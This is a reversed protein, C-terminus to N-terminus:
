IINSVIEESILGISTTDERGTVNNVSLISNNDKGVDNTRIMGKKSIRYIVKDYEFTVRVYGTPKSLRSCRTSFLKGRSRVDLAPYILRSIM